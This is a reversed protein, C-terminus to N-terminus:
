RVVIRFFRYRCDVAVTEEPADVGRRTVKAMNWGGGYLWRPVSESIWAFCAGCGNTAAASRPRLSGDLSVRLSLSRAGGADGGAAESFRRGGAVDEIFYSGARWGLALGTEEPSLDGDGDADRGFAVQVCNSATGAFSLEVGFGRADSRATNFPVNTSVETDAHAPEPLRAVAAGQSASCCLALAAGLM